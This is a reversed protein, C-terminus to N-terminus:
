YFRGPSYELEIIVNRPLMNLITKPGNWMYPM